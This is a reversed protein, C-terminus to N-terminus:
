CWLDSEWYAWWSRGLDTMMRDLRDLILNRDKMEFYTAAELTLSAWYRNPEWQNTCYFIATAKRGDLRERWESIGMGYRAWEPARQWKM